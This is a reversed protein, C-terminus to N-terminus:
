EEYDDPELHADPEMGAAVRRARLADVLIDILEVYTSAAYYEEPPVPPLQALRDAVADRDDEDLEFLAPGLDEEPDPEPDPEPARAQEDEARSAEEEDLDDDDDDDDDERKRRTEIKPPPPAPPARLSRAVLEIPRLALYVHELLLRWTNPDGEHEARWFGRHRRRVVEGIYAGAAQAVLPVTEPREKALTRGQKIYHDLIPLTEPEYDLRIGLARDVFRVCAEALDQIAQPPADVASRAAGNIKGNTREV